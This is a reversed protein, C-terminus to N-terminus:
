KDVAVGAAGSGEGDGALESEVVAKKWCQHKRCQCSRTSVASGVRALRMSGCGQEEAEEVVMAAGGRGSSSSRRLCMERMRRRLECRAEEHGESDCFGCRSVAAKAARRAERVSEAREWRLALAVAEDLAEPRQPAVWEQFEPLLGDVFASKLFADPVDAGCGDPFRRLIGQMRLYYRNVAEGPRQKLSTLDDRARDAADPQRFFDLFAARVAHWPPPPDDAGPAALDYWLAADGDLSAPFIRAANAPSTATTNVRDFRSLHADPCEGPDGRFVPLPAVVLYSAAAIDPYSLYSPPASVSAASPSPTLEPTPPDASPQTPSRHRHFRLFGRRRRRRSVPADHDSASPETSAHGM